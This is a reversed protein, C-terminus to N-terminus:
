DEGCFGFAGPSSGCWHKGGGGGGGALRGGKNSAGERASLHPPDADGLGGGIGWVLHHARELAGRIRQAVAVRVTHVVEVRGLPDVAAAGPHGLHPLVLSLRRAM